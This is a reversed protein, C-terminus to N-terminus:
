PRGATLMLKLDRGRLRSASPPKFSQPGVAVQDAEKKTVSFDRRGQQGAAGEPLAHGIPAGTM